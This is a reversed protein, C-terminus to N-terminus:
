LVIRNSVAGGRGFNLPVNLGFSVVDIAQELDMYVTVAEHGEHGKM